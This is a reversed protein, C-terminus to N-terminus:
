LGNKDGAIYVSEDYQIGMWPRDSLLPPYIIEDLQKNMLRLPFADKFGMEQMQQLMTLSASKTEFAGVCVRIWRQGSKNM